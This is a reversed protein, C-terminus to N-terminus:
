KDHLRNKIFQYFVSIVINKSKIIFLVQSVNNNKLYIPPM